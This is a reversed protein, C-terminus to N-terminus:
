FVHAPRVDLIGRLFFCGQNTWTAVWVGQTAMTDPTPFINWVLPRGQKGLLTATTGPLKPPLGKGAQSRHRVGGTPRPGTSSHWHVRLGIYVAKKPHRSHNFFSLHWYSHHFCSSDHKRKDIIHINQWVQWSIFINDRERERGIHLTTVHAVMGFTILSDLLKAEMWVSNWKSSVEILCVINVYYIMYGLHNMDFFAGQMNVGM